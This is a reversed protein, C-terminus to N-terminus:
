NVTLNVATSATISGTGADTGTVTVTYSGATTGTSGGGGGGGGGGISGGGSCGISGVVAIVALVSLLARWSRRRAPVGFFLIMALAAGGVPAFFRKLPVVLAASSSTTNVTLTSTQSSTGNITVSNASFSCTPMDSPNTVSTTVKCALNVGGTFGNSPTVTITSTNGSTAGPIVAINGGEALTFSPNASAANVTATLSTTNTIAGTAADSGTVTVTYTGPTTSATTKVTVTDTAATTGSISISSSTMACTAPSAPSSASTVACHLNVAGTFGGSPTVTITSTNGSTAGATVTVNGSDTLTISPTTSPATITATLSTGITGTTANSGNVTVTYIGPTTSSTSKVTLTDTAATTGTINVSNSALSCTAPTAPSSSSSVACSLSVSGTFGNSPTVTISSTGNAGAAATINGSNTLAITPSGTANVNAILATSGTIKGTAADAASVTVTYVGPTTGTNTVISLTDTVAATGTISASTSTLVCATPNSANSIETTVACSLSVAGTFNGSPTITITSTNGTTAGAAATVNGSNTLVIATTDVSFGIEYDSADINNNTDECRVYYSYSKGNGLGTVVTSHSTGGTNSFTNTMSAYAVGATTSYRCTANEDTRVSLTAQTTGEALIGAPLGGTLAPPINGNDPTATAALTALDSVAGPLWGSNWEHVRTAGTVWTHQVGATTMQTNLQDMDATWAAQDGSIWLRNQSEFPQANSAVLSPIDYTTYNAQNGFNEPLASFDTLQNHQAPSDWAAGANFVGPHRLMFFLVANGSKSFGLLYRQPTSGSPLLSDGFPVLDDIIFSEMRYNPDLINDGYWPEYDFSPEVLTMNYTNPVNQQRLQDLGDGWPSSPSDVGADVPLLFLVRPPVGAPPSTPALVRITQPQSGQYVSTVPYYKVGNADVTPTGVTMTPSSQGQLPSIGLAPLLCFILTLFRARRVM